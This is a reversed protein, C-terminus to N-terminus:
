DRVTCVTDPFCRLCRRPLLITLEGRILRESHQRLRRGFAAAVQEVQQARQGVVFLWITLRKLVLVVVPLVQDCLLSSSGVRRGRRIFFGNM